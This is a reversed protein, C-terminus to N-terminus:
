YTEIKKRSKFYIGAQILDSERLHLQGRYKIVRNAIDENAKKFHKIYRAKVPIPKLNKKVYIYGAERALERLIFATSVSINLIKAMAVTSVPFYGSSQRAIQKSRGFNRETARKKRRQWNALNGIFAGAIFAKFKLIDATDFRAAVRFKSVIEKRMLDLGRIFYIGSEDNYGVWNKEILKNLNNQVTKESKLSLEKAITKLEERNIKMKGSCRGKLHVYLQFPPVFKNTIAWSCLDVPLYLYM